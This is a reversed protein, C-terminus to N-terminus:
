ARDEYWYTQVREDFRGSRVLMWWCLRPVDLLFHWDGYKDFKRVSAIARVGAVDGSFRDDASVAFFTRLFGGWSSLRVFKQRPRRRRGLQKLAWLFRVDESILLAEDYRGAAEFDARRCFWVGADVGTLVLLPLIALVTAAIGPSMRELLIGTAGGVYREDAMADDIANFTQPHIQFDADVFCLVEGGAVAAGGNPAAAIRRKAVYAVRCGRERAIRATADTSDNDAVIVEILSAGGRYRDRAEDVTDLLRPLYAEENFAPIVLSFRPRASSQCRQSEAGPERSEAPIHGGGSRGVAM